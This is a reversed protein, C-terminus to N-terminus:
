AAKAGSQCLQIAAASVTLGAFHLTSDPGECATQQRQRLFFNLNRLIAKPPCHLISPHSLSCISPSTRPHSHVCLLIKESPRQSTIWYVTPGLVLVPGPVQALASQALSASLATPLLGFVSLPIYLFSSLCEKVCTLCFALSLLQFKFFCHWM